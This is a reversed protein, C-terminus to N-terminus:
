IESQNSKFYIAMVNNISDSSLLKAGEPLEIVEDFNFAPTTFIYKKNKYILNKRGEANITVTVMRQQHLKEELQLLVFKYFGWCIALIKKGHKFCNSAFNIHKKIENTM